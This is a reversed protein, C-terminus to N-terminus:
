HTNIRRLDVPAIGGLNPTQVNPAFQRAMSSQLIPGVSDSTAPALKAMWNQNTLDWVPIWQQLANNWQQPWNDYNNAYLQVGSQDTGSPHLWPPSGPWRPDTM